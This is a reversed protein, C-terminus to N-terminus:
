IKYKIEAKKPLENQQKYNIAQKSNIIDCKNISIYKFSM